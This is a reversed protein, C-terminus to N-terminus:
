SMLPEANKHSPFKPHALAQGHCRGCGTKAAGFVFALFQGWGDNCYGAVCRIGFHVVSILNQNLKLHTLLKIDLHFKKVFESEYWEQINLLWCV